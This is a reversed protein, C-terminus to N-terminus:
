DGNPNVVYLAEDGKNLKWFKGLCHTCLPMTQGDSKQTVICESDNECQSTQHVNGGMIFPKYEQVEASCREASEDSM